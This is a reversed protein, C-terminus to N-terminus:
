FVSAPVRIGGGALGWSSLQETGAEEPISVESESGQDGM